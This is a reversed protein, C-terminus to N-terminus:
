RIKDFCHRTYYDDKYAELIDSIFAKHIPPICIDIYNENIYFYDYYM